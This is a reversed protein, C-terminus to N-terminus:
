PSPGSKRSPIRGDRPWRWTPNSFVLLLSGDDNRIVRCHSETGGSPLSRELRLDSSCLISLVNDSESFDITIIMKWPVIVTRVQGLFEADNPECFVIGDERAVIAYRSRFHSLLSGGFVGFSSAATVWIVSNSGGSLKTVIAATGIPVCIYCVYVVLATIPLNAIVTTM